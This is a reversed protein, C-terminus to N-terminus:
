IRFFRNPPGSFSKKEGSQKTSWIILHLFGKGGVAIDSAQVRKRGHSLSLVFSKEPVMNKEFLDKREYRSKSVLVIEQKM